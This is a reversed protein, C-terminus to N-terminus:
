TNFSHLEESIIIQEYYFLFSLSFMILNLLSLLIFALLSYITQTDKSSTLNVAANLGDAPTVPKRSLHGAERRM